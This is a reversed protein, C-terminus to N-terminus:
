CLVDPSLGAHIHLFSLHVLLPSCIPFRLRKGRTHRRKIACSLINKRQLLRAIALQNFAKLRSEALLIASQVEEGRRAARLNAAVMGVM